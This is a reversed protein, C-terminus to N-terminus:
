NQEHRIRKALQVDKPFVQLRGSHIACLNAEELLEILYQEVHLQLTKSAADELKADEMYEQIIEKTLRKFPLAPFMICNDQKQAKRIERLAKASTNKEGKKPLLAYHINPIVGAGLFEYGNERFLKSLEEDNEVVLFLDRVTIRKRKSDRASNGALELIEACIYELVAAFYVPAGQGVRFPKKLLINRTRTIPFVLGARKSLGKGEVFKKDDDFGQSQFKTVARTGARVAAKSIESPFILKVSSQIERSTITKTGNSKVLEVSKNAIDDALYNILSNLESLANKNIGIDRHSNILVRKIYIEFKTNNTHLDKVIKKKSIKVKESTKSM